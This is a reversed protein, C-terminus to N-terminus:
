EHYINTVRAAEVRRSIPNTTYCKSLRSIKIVNSNRLIHVLTINRM